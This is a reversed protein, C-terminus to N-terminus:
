QEFQCRRMMEGFSREAGGGVSHLSHLLVDDLAQEQRHWRYEARDRQDEERHL